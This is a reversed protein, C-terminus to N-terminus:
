YEVCVLINVIYALYLSNFLKLKFKRDDDFFKNIKIQHALQPVQVKKFIFAVLKYNVLGPGIYSAPIEYMLIM